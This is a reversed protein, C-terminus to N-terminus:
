VYGLVDAINDGIKKNAAPKTIKISSKRRQEAAKLRLTKTKESAIALDVLNSYNGGTFKLYARLLDNQLQEEEPTEMLEREYRSYGKDDVQYLYNFFDDATAASQKGNKNILITEPIKYGAIEKKDIASKVKGWYAIEAKKDEEIKRQAAEAQEAKVRKDNEQLTALDQKAADLLRNTSKLFSIYDDISGVKGSEKFAERVIAEQQATNNEDIVITSRDRVQGFGEYSNGNAVYYNLFDSVIPFKDILQQVGAQAYETRKADLVENIYSAVGDPTNEFTIPKDNEDTVEFGVKEIIKAVDIANEKDDTDDVEFQKLFDKVDKAEKFVKNNKDILNGEADVTYTDEGITIVSGPEVVLDNDDVQNDNNNNNKDDTNNVTTDVNNNRGDGDTKNNNKPDDNNSEDIPPIINGDSGVTGTVGTDLDTIPETGSDTPNANFGFDLTPM